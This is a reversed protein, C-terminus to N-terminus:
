KKAHSLFKEHTENFHKGTTSCTKSWYVNYCQGGNSKYSKKLVIGLIPTVDELRGNPIFKILVLDGPKYFIM